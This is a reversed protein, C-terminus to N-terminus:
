NNDSRFFDEYKGKGITSDRLKIASPYDLIFLFKRDHAKAYEKAQALAEEYNGLFIYLKSAGRFDRFFGIWTEQPYLSYWNSARCWFARAM